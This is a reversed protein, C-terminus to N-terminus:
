PIKPIQQWSLLRRYWFPKGIAKLDAKKVNDVEVSHIHLVYEMAQDQPNELQLMQKISLHEFVERIPRMSNGHCSIAINGPNQKLWEKLQAIFHLTRNEVM